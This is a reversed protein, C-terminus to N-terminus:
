KLPIAGPILLAHELKLTGGRYALTIHLTRRSGVKDLPVDDITRSVDAGALIELSAQRSFTLDKSALTETVLLTSRGDQPRRPASPSVLACIDVTLPRGDVTFTDHSCNPSPSSSKEAPAVALVAALFVM